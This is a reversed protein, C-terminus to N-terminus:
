RQPGSIRGTHDLDRWILRVQAVIRESKVNAAPAGADFRVLLDLEVWGIASFRAEGSVDGRSAKCPSGKLSIWSPRNSSFVISEAISAALSAWAFRTEWRTPAPRASARSM